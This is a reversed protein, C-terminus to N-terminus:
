FSYKARVEFERPHGVGSFTTGTFTYLNDFRAVYYYKNLLNTVEATISLNDKSNRWTVNANLLSYSPLSYPFATGRGSFRSDTYSYDIRPTLSGASALDITYQIGASAKWKPASSAPDQLFVGSPRTVPDGIVAPALSKWRADIYSVSADIDLGEVPRATVEAEVGKIRSNGANAVIACPGGGYDTCDFLQLQVDKYDDVFGAINVRLRRDFLDTKLGLEYNTLTEPGFKGLRAQTANFPRASVGGGKFGTSVTAYALVEPSFRYDVSIRYDVKDGKFSSTSGNLDGLPDLFLNISGDLNRRVFTLSKSEKTYRIGGTITMNPILHAIATAFAAKSSAKVPDDSFFQLALGPVIYGADGLHYTQTKQDSYYGGITWDVFSGIVGNLRAEQSFFHHTNIEEGFGHVAGPTFDDDSRFSTKYQRHATILQLKLHDALDVALNSSVGWGQFEERNSLNIGASMQPTATGLLPQGAPASFDAYTCHRGCNFAAPVRSPDIYTLVEAAAPNDINSYDGSVLWDVAGANYRLALRAGSYNEGGFTGVTCHGAPRKAVIGQANGPHACGYDVQDVYGDQQKHVVSLRGSLDDNIKFGLGARLNLRNRSGGGVEVYGDNSGDPKRSFLKIAGGISNRGTLTGQPGRLVEIRDLDLIDLMAGNLTAIYVDDVYMGVGPEYAPNSDFQGVGRIQAGISPGFIAGSRVLTVNPAQQAIQVVEFQGRAALMESNIATVALPTNQVSQSRFQATVVVEQTVSAATDKSARAAPGDEAHAAHSAAALAAALVSRSVMSVRGRRITAKERTM